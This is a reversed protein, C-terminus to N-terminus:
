LTTWEESVCGEEFDWRGDAQGGKLLRKVLEVDAEPEVDLAVIGQQENLEGSVGVIQLADVVSQLRGGLPGERRPVIRITLHGSWQVRGTAWFVGDSGALATVVDNTALNRVFWPTNDIRFQDGVLQEAWLGESEAPPWGDPGRHLKFRVMTWGQNSRDDAPGHAHDSKPPNM